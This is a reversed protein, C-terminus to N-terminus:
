VNRYGIADRGDAIVRKGTAAAERAYRNGVAYSRDATVGEGTAAAERVYHNWVADRGDSNPRKGIAGAERAYRYGVADHGNSSCRKGTAVAEGINVHIDVIGKKATYIANKEILILRLQNLIGSSFLSEKIGNGGADRGDAYIRKGTTADEGV